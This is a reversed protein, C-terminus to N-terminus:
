VELTSGRIYCFGKVFCPLYLFLLARFHSGLGSRRGGMPYWTFYYILWVSRYLVDEWFTVYWVVSDYGTFVLSVQYAM